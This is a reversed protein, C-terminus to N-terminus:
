ACATHRCGSANEKATGLRAFVSAAFVSGCFLLSLHHHLTGAHHLATMARLVLFLCYPPFCTSVFGQGSYRRGRGTPNLLFFFCDTSRASFLCLFLHQDLVFEHSVCLRQCRSPSLSRSGFRSLSINLLLCPSKITASLTMSFTRHM